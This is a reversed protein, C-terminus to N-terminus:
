SAFVNKLEFEILKLLEETTVNKSTEGKQYANLLVKLFEEQKIMKEEM